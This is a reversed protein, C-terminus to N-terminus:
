QERWAAYHKSSRRFSYGFVAAWEEVRRLARDRLVESINLEMGGEHSRSPPDVRLVGHAHEEIRDVYDGVAQLKSLLEAEKFLLAYRHHADSIAASPPLDTLEDLSLRHASEAVPYAMAPYAMAATSMREAAM